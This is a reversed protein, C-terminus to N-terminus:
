ENAAVNVLYMEMYMIVSQDSSRPLFIYLFFNTISRKLTNVRLGHKWKAKVSFSMSLFHKVEKPRSDRLINWSQFLSRLVFLGRAGYSKRAWKGMKWNFRTELCLPDREDPCLFWTHDTGLIASGCCHLGSFDLSFNVAFLILLLVFTADIALSVWLRNIKCELKMCLSNTHM